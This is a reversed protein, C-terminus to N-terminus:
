HGATGAPVSTYVGVLRTTNGFFLFMSMGLALIGIILFGQSVLKGMHGDDPTITKDETKGYTNMNYASYLVLLIVVAILMGFITNYSGESVCSPM